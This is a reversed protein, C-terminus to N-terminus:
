RRSLATFDTRQRRRNLFIHSKLFFELAVYLLADFLEQGSQHTLVFHFHQHSGLKIKVLDALLFIQNCGYIGFIHFTDFDTRLFDLLAVGTM